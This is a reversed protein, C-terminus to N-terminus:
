EYPIFVPKGLKGITYHHIVDPLTVNQKRLSELMADAGVERNIWQTRKGCAMDCFYGWEDILKHGAVCDDCPCKPWDTPRYM